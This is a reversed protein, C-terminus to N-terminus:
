IFLLGTTRISFRLGLYIVGIILLFMHNRKFRLIFQRNERNGFQLLIPVLVKSIVIIRDNNYILQNNYFAFVHIDGHLPFICPVGIIRRWLQNTYFCYVLCWKSRFASDNKKPRLLKCIL